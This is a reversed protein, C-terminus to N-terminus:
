YVRKAYFKNSTDPDAIGSFNIGGCAIHAGNPANLRMRLKYTTSSSVTVRATIRVHHLSYSSATYDRVGVAGVTNDVINNSADTINVDGGFWNGDASLLRVTGDFIIEWKETGTPNITLTGGTVDTSTISGTSTLVTETLTADIYSPDVGGGGSAAQWAGQGNAAVQTWVHGVTGTTGFGNSLDQLYIKGSKNVDDTEHRGAKIVVLGARSNTTQFNDQIADGGSLILSGAEAYGDAYGYTGCKGPKVTISGTSGGIWANDGTTILLNDTPDSPYNLEPSAATSIKYTKSSVQEPTNSFHKFILDANIDTPAVLNSLQANAGTGSIAQWAGSGDAATQTWVHGTTGQSGDQLKIKGRVANVGAAGTKLVLHGSAVPTLPSGSDGTAITLAGSSGYATSGTTLLIGATLDNAMGYPYYQESTGIRWTRLSYYDGVEYTLDRNIQTASIGQSPNYVTGTLNSLLTNAGSGGGTANLIIKSPNTTDFTMNTGAELTKFELDTATKQKFLGTAGGVNSATQVATAAVGEVTTVDSVLTDVQNQVNLIEADVYTIDAKLSLDDQVDESTALTGSTSPLTVEIDQTQASVITTKTDPAGAAVIEIEAPQITDAEKITLSKTLSTSSFAM